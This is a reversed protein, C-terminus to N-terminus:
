VVVAVVDGEVVLPAGVAALGLRTVVVCPERQEEMRRCREICERFLGPDQESAAFADFLPTPNFPGCAITGDADYVAVTLHTVRGYTELSPRWVDPAFREDVM